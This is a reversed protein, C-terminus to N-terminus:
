DTQVTIGVTLSRDNRHLVGDPPTTDRRYLWTTQLGFRRSLMVRISTETSLLYDGFDTAAPELQTRHDLSVGPRIPFTGTVSASFRTRSTSLRATDSHVLEYDELVALGLSVRTLSDNVVNVAAGGSAALRVAINRVDDRLVTATVFPSVDGQPLFRLEADAGYDEVATQGNGRGYRASLATRLEIARGGLRQVEIKTAFLTLARNGSVDTLSLNGGMRWRASDLPAAGVSVPDVSDPPAAPQALTPSASVAAALLLATLSSM